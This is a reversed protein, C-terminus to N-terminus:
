CVQCQQSFIFRAPFVENLKDGHAVKFAFVQALWPDIPLVEALISFAQNTQAAANISSNIFPKMAVINLAGTLLDNAQTINKAVIIKIQLEVVLPKFDLLLYIM